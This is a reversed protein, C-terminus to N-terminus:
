LGNCTGIVLSHGDHPEPFDFKTHQTSDDDEEYHLTYFEKFSDDQPCLRLLLLNHNNTYSHHLHISVFASNLIFSKWTKSVSTCIVMSKIPLFVFIHTQIEDPLPEMWNYFIHNSNILPHLWFSWLSDMLCCLPVEYLLISKEFRSHFSHSLLCGFWFQPTVTYLFNCVNSVM